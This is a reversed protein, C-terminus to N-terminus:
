MDCGSPSICPPTGESGCHGETRKTFDERPVLVVSKWGMFCNKRSSWLSRGSCDISNWFLTALLCFFEFGSATHKNLTIFDLNHSSRQETHCKIPRDLFAGSLQLSHLNDCTSKQGNPPMLDEWASRFTLVKTKLPLFVFSWAVYSVCTSIHLMM